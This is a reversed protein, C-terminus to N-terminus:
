KRQKIDQNNCTIFFWNALIKNAHVKMIIIKIAQSNSYAVKGVKPM